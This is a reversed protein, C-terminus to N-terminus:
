SGPPPGPPDPIEPPHEQEEEGTLLLATIIGAAGLAVGGWLWYSRYWTKQSVEPRQAPGPSPPAKEARPSPLPEPDKRTNYNLPRATDVATELSNITIKDTANSKLLVNDLFVDGSFAQIMDFSFSIVCEAMKLAGGRPVEIHNWDMPEPGPGHASDALSDGASTFVIKQGPRGEAILSGHVHITYYGKFAVRTGPEIVLAAGHPIRIDGCVIYPSKARTWRGAQDNAVETGGAAAALFIILILTRLYNNM